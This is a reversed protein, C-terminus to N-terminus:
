SGKGRAAEAKVLLGWVLSFHELSPISRKDEEKARKLKYMKM